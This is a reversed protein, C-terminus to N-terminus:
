TLVLRQNKYKFNIMKQLYSTFNSVRWRRQFYSLSGAPLAATNKSKQTVFGMEGLYSLFAM